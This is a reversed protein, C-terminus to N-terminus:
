PGKLVITLLYTVLNYILWAMFNGTTHFGGVVFSVVDALVEEDDRSNDLIANLLPAQNYDGSDRFIVLQQAV